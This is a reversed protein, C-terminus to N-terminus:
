TMPQVGTWQCKKRRSETQLLFYRINIHKTRKGSSAKGNKKWFCQVETTKFSSKERVGYEQAELFNRTWIIGPMFYNIRVLETETSSRTNLNQKTSASIPFGRGMCLGDGSHGRMNLHVRYSGDIRWKLVGTGNAGIKLLIKLTVRIHKMLHALKSWDDEDTEIGRATLYSIAPGTDARARKTAFLM